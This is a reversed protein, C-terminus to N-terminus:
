KSNMALKAWLFIAVPLTFWFIWLAKELRGWIAAEPREPMFQDQSKKGEKSQYVELPISEGRRCDMRIRSITLDPCIPIFFTELQLNGTGPELGPIV